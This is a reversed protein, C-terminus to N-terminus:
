KFLSKVKEKALDWQKSIKESFHQKSFQGEHEKQPITKLSSFIVPAQGTKQINKKNKM